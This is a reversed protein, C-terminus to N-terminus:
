RRSFLFRENPMTLPPDFYNANETFFPRREPFFVEFRQNVVSQPEDSEVQAFDPNATSDVVLSDKIVFKADLGAKADALNSIAVPQTPIRQDIGRFARWSTYPVFQMNRNGTIGDPAEVAAAQSLLGRTKLTVRPWWSGESRRAIWRWFAFRWTTGDAPFRLSKFPISIWVVFGRDTLVGRSDWVTDFTEDVVGTDESYLSDDQVGLANTEFQYARRRDDFTDLYFGVADEDLTISERREVRARLKEPEDDLAVFIVYLRSEDRGLYVETQETAPMGDSPARQIFGSIRILRGNQGAGPNTGLFEELRPASDVKPISIVSTRAEGVTQASLGQELVGGGVSLTLVLRVLIPM